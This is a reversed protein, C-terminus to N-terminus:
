AQGGREADRADLEAMFEAYEAQDMEEYQRHMAELEAQEQKYGAMGADFDDHM